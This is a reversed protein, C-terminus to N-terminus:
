EEDGVSKQLKYLMVHFRILFFILLSILSAMMVQFYFLGFVTFTALIMVGFNFYVAWVLSEYRIQGIYEDENRRKSFGILLSGLIILGLLFEDTLDNEVMTFYYRGDMFDDSLFAFTKLKLGGEINQGTIMLWILWLVTPILMLWGIKNCVRPFLFTTKM